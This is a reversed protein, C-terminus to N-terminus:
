GTSFLLGLLMMILGLVIGAAEQAAQAQGLAGLAASGAALLVGLGALAPGM